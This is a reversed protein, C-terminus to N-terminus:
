LLLTPAWGTTGARKAWVPEWTSLAWSQKQVRPKEAQEPQMYTLGSTSPTLEGPLGCGTFSFLQLIFAGAGACDSTDWGRGSMGVLAPAQNDRATVEEKM